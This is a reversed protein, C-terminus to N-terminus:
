KGKQNKLQQIAELLLKQVECPERISALSPRAAFSGGWGPGRQWGVYAQGATEAFISGTKSLRDFFGIRVNVEQIKELDVVRLNTGFGGTQMILRQDSLLYETNKYSLFAWIPMGFSFGFGIFFFVLPFLVFELPAGYRGYALCLFRSFFGYLISWGSISLPQLCSCFAKACAKRAVSNKRKDSTSKRNCVFSMKRM